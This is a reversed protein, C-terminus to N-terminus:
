FTTVQHCSLSAGCGQERCVWPSNYALPHAAAMEGGCQGCVLSSLHGGLELPDRCRPCECHFYRSCDIIFSIEM